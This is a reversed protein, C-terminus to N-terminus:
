LFDRIPLAPKYGLDCGAIRRSQACMEACVVPAPAPNRCGGVGGPVRVDTYPEIRLRRSAKGSMAEQVRISDAQPPPPPPLEGEGEGGAGAFTNGLALAPTSWLTFV